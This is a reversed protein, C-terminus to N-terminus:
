GKNIRIDNNLLSNSQSIGKNIGVDNDLPESRSIGKNIGVDNDLPESRSIGKNNIRRDNNLPQNGLSIGKYNKIFYAGCFYIISKDKHIEENFHNYNVM